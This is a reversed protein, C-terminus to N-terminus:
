QVQTGNVLVKQCYESLQQAIPYGAIHWTQTVGSPGGTTCAGNVYCVTSCGGLAGEGFTGDTGTFKNCPGTNVPSCTTTQPAGNLNLGDPSFTSFSDWFSMQARIPQPSPSNQDNVQYTFSVITGCANSTCLRETTGQATGPVMSLSTPVQVYFDKANSTQGSTTVSIAGANNGPTATSSIVADFTIQTDTATTINSVQIAAPTNVHGGLFGQGTITVSSTTAGILGRAPSISTIKPTVNATAPFTYQCATQLDLVNANVNSTGPAVGTLSVTPTNSPGSISTGSDSTWSYRCKSSPSGYSCTQVAGNSGCSGQPEGSIDCILTQATGFTVTSGVAFTTTNPSFTLGCLAFGSACSFSRAMSTDPNSQLLRGKAVGPMRTFWTVQGGLVNAPLTQGRDDKTRNQILGRFSIADTQM